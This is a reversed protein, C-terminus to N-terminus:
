FRVSASARRATRSTWFAVVDYDGGMGLTYLFNGYGDAWAGIEAGDWMASPYPTDATRM